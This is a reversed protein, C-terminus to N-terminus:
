GGAEQNIIDSIVRRVALHNISSGPAYAEFYNAIIRRHRRLPWSVFTRCVISIKYKSLTDGGSIQYKRGLM